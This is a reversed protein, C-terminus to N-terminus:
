CARAITNYKSSDVRGSNELTRREGEDTINERQANKGADKNGNCSGNRGSLDYYMVPNNTCYTYLNLGDGRYTDEQM